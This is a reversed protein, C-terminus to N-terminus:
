SAKVTFSTGYGNDPAGPTVCAAFYDGPTEPKFKFTLKQKEVKDQPDSNVNAPLVIEGIKAAREQFAVMKQDDTLSDENEFYCAIQVPVPYPQAVEVNLTLESGAVPNGSVSISKFVETGKFESRFSVGCAPLALLLVLLVLRQRISAPNLEHPDYCGRKTRAM